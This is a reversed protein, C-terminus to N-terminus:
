KMEFIINVTTSITLEGSPTQTDYSAAEAVMLKSTSYRNSSIYSPTSGESISIPEGLEMNAASSLTQAKSMANEVAKIRAQEYAESKDEKDFQISYLNINTINGIDDIIKGLDDINRLKVKISQSAVQGVLERKGEDWTYQPNLNLYNTSIDKDAINYTYLIKLAEDMKKNAANLAESTTKKTENVEINFTVIDPTISVEGSASVTILKENHELDRSSLCSTLLLSVVILSMILTIKKKM